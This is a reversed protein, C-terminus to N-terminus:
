YQGYAAAMAAEEEAKKARLKDFLSGLAGGAMTALAMGSGTLPNKSLLKPLFHGALGGGVLGFGQGALYENDFLGGLNMAGTLGLGASKLKHNGIWNKALAATTSLGTNEPLGQIAIKDTSLPSAKATKFFDTLASNAAANSGFTAKLADPDIRKNKAMNKLLSSVNESAYLGDFLGGGAAPANEIFSFGM